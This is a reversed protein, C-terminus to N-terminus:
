ALEEWKLPDDVKLSKTVRRNLVQKLCESGIAGIWKPRLAVLNDETVVAGCDMDTRFVLCKNFFKRLESAGGQLERSFISQNIEFEYPIPETERGRIVMEKYEAPTLSVKHDPGFHDRSFTFHKEILVAGRSIAETVSNHDDISHDSFGIDLDPYRLGFQTITDLALDSAKAPYKSVCHMLTLQPARSLVHNILSDLEALTIMGSSVIIPLGTRLLYEMMLYDTADGSGVKWTQVLGNVKKAAGRSMPTTIFEIGVSTCYEKLPSWFDELPTLDTNLKVWKYRDFDVAHPSSYNLRSSIEDDVAHTQFKVGHAGSELAADVLRKSNDLCKETSNNESQNIFNKGIEAVFKLNKSKEKFMLSANGKTTSRSM